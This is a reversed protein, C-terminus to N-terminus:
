WHANKIHNYDSYQMIMKLLVSRTQINLDQHFLYSLTLGKKTELVPHAM